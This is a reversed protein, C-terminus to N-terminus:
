NVFNNYTPNINYITAYDAPGLANLIPQGNQPPFTVLPKKGPVIKLTGRDNSVHIQPRKVFDHLTFVGATAPALAAPIQPDSANAWHQEGSVVYKHIPTHFAEEVQSASGSFEILTRGRTPSVQFGHSELWRTITHLDADSPGFQKGFKTPTLWKHYNPSAKDQQDDLLRRLVTLHGEDLAEKILPRPSVTRPTTPPVSNASQAEAGPVGPFLTFAVSVFLAATGPFFSLTARM